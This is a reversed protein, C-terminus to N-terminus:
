LDRESMVKNRGTNKALYLAKDAREIVTDIGDDANVQSVGASVTINGISEGKKRLKLKKESIRHRIQEAVICANDITTAPLLVVFEEGGYRAPFDRGKVTEVLGSGMIQLVQDGIKHGYQDNFNKFHDIDLMIASFTEGKEKFEEHLEQLKRDLSKRNNLGTLADISAERAAEELQVRLTEMQSTTEQLKQQLDHSFEINQSTDARIDKVVEQIESLSAAQALRESHKKLQTSYENSHGATTIMQELFNNIMTQTEKQIEELLERNEQKEFYKEYLTRNIEPTFSASSGIIQDIDAALGKNGGHCYQFWIRYNEPTLPVKFQGMKPLVAKAIETAKELDKELKKM